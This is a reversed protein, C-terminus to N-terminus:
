RTKPRNSTIEDPTVAIRGDVAATYAKDRQYRPDNMAQFMEQQNAFGAESRAASGSILPATKGAGMATTHMGILRQTIAILRRPDESYETQMADWDPKPIGGQQAWSILNQYEKEGGVAGQASILAKEAQMQAHATQLKLVGDVIGKPFGLKKLAAYHTDSLKGQEAFTKGVETPDLGARTTITALDADDPLDALTPTPEMGPIQNVLQPRTRSVLKRLEVHAKTQEEPTKFEPLLWVPREPAAPPTGTLSPTAALVPAAPAPTATTPTQGAADDAM